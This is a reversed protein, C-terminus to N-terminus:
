VLHFSKVSLHPVKSIIKNKNSFQACALQVRGVQKIIVQHPDSPVGVVRNKQPEVDIMDLLRVLPENYQPHLRRPEDVLAAGAHLPADAM